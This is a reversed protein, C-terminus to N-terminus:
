ETETMVQERALKLSSEMQARVEAESARGDLDAVLKRVVDEHGAEQFDARIVEAAYLHAEEGSKGLLEAAWLGVLKNRRAIARFEMEAEHAFRNEFGKERDKFPDM